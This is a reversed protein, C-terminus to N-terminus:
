RTESVSPWTQALYHGSPFQAKPTAPEASQLRHQMRLWAINLITIPSALLTKPAQTWPALAM